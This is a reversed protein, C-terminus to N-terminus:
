DLWNWIVIAGAVGALVYAATKGPSSAPEVNALLDNATLGPAPASGGNQQIQNLGASYVTARGLIGKVYNWVDTPWSAGSDVKAPGWNYAALAQDWSGYKSFLQKLYTVGGRINQNVDSPDVGLAAATAPMLQMIGIAGASSVVLSGAATWQCVGSETRAVSLAIEPPVGQRSAEDMVVQALDVKCASM